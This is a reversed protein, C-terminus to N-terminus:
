VNGREAELEELLLRLTGCIYHADYYCTDWFICECPNDKNKCRNWYIDDEQFKNTYEVLTRVAHLIDEGCNM